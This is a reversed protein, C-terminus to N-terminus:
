LVGDRMTDSVTKVSTKEVGKQLETKRLNSNYIRSWTIRFPVNETITREERTVRTIRATKAARLPKNLDASIIDCDSLKIGYKEIVTKLPINKYPTVAFTEGDAFIYAHMRTLNVFSLVVSLIYIGLVIAAFQIIKKPEIKKNM